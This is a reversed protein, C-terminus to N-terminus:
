PWYFSQVMGHPRMFDIFFNEQEESIERANGMWWHANYICATFNGFSVYSLSVLKTSNNNYSGIVNLIFSTNDNSICSVYVQKENVPVFKHNDRIGTVTNGTCFRKKQNGKVTDVEDSIVYIFTIGLVNEKCFDYLNLPTLIQKNISQQLISRAALHKVTGGVGDCPLKRNSTAFHM